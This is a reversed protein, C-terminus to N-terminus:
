CAHWQDERGSYWNKELSAMTLDAARRLKQASASSRQRLVAKDTGPMHRSGQTGRAAAAAPADPEAILPVAMSTDYVAMTPHPVHCCLHTM